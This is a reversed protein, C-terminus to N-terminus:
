TKKNTLPRRRVTDVKRVYSSCCLYTILCFNNVVITAQAAPKASPACACLEDLEPDEASGELLLELVV